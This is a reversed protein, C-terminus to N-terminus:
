AYSPVTQFPVPRALACFKAPLVYPFPVAKAAGYSHREFSPKLGQPLTGLFSVEAALPRPQSAASVARTFERGERDSRRLAEISGKLESTM